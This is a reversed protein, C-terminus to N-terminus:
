TKFANELSDGNYRRLQHEHYILSANSYKL